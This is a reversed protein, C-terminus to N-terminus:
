DPNMMSMSDGATHHYRFYFSHDPTDKIYNDFTPVGEDALPMVDVSSVNDKYQGAGLISLYRTLVDKVIDAGTGEHGFGIM